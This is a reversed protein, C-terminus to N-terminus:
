IVGIKEVYEADIKIAIMEFIFGVLRGIITFLIIKAVENFNVGIYSVFIWVIYLIGLALVLKFIAKTFSAEMKKISTSIKKTFVIGVVVVILYFFGTMVTPKEALLFLYGTIIPTGFVVLWNLVVLIWVKLKQM